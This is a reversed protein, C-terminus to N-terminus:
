KSLEDARNKCAEMAKKIGEYFKYKDLVELAKLTTGGPSSVMKILDDINQNSHKIMKVSGEITACILEKATDEDIGLEKAGDIVSKVFLYVYAPSSGNVSVISNMQDEKIISTIGSADFISKVFDFEEKSVNNNCCLATAGSSLLLPTNPMARIIKIDSGLIKSIYGTSIGAAITVFINKNTVDNKINELVTGFDQPKICLFIFGCEKVLQSISSAAKIAKFSNFRDYKNIDKDFLTIEIDKIRSNMIGSIIGFAMNGAGIFGIKTM